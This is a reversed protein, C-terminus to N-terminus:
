TKIFSRSLLFQIPIRFLLMLINFIELWLEIVNVPAKKKRQWGSHWDRELNRENFTGVGDGWSGLSCRMCAANICQARHAKTVGM